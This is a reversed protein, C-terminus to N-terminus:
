VSDSRMGTQMRNNHKRPVTLNQRVRCRLLSFAMLLETYIFDTLVVKQAAEGVVEVMHKLYPICVQKGLFLAIICKM